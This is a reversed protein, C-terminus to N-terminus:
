KFKGQKWRQIWKGIAKNQAQIQLGTTGLFAPKLWPRAPTGSVILPKAASYRGFFKGEKKSALVVSRTFRATRRARGAASKLKRRMGLTPIAHKKTGSEVLVGYWAEGIKGKGRFVGTVYATFDRRQKIPLERWLASGPKVFRSRIGRRLTGTKSRAKSKARKRVVGAQALVAKRAIKSQIDLPLKKLDKILDKDSTIDITIGM